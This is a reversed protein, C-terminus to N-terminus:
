SNPKQWVSSRKQQILHCITHQKRIQRTWPTRYAYVYYHNRWLPLQLFQTTIRICLLAFTRIRFVDNSHSSSFARCSRARDPSGHKVFEKNKNQTEEPSGTNGKPKTSLGVDNWRKLLFFEFFFANHFSANLLKFARYNQGKQVSFVKFRHWDLM